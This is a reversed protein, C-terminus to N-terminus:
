AYVAMSRQYKQAAADCYEIVERAAQLGVSGTKDQRERYFAAVSRAFPDMRLMGSTLRFANQYHAALGSVGNALLRGADRVATEVQGYILHPNMDQVLITQRNMDLMASADEGSVTLLTQKGGRGLLLTLEATGRECEFAIQWHTPLGGRETTTMVKCDRVGGMLDQVMALPHVGFELVANAPDQFVFHSPPLSKLNDASVAFLVSVHNLRGFKCAKVMARMKDFAPSYVLQHNVRGYVGSRACASELDQCEKVTTALPKELLVDAGSEMALVAPAAHLHAPTLIHVVEPRETQLMQEANAYAKKAGHQAAFKEARGQHIDCVAVLAADKVARLSLAHKNAIEGTGIFAVRTSV